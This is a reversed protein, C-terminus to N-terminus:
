HFLRSIAAFPEKPCGALFWALFLAVFFLFLRDLLWAFVIIPLAIIGFLRWESGGSGNLQWKLPWTLGLLLQELYYAAFVRGFFLPLCYGFTTENIEKLRARMNGTIGIKQLAFFPIHILVYIFQKNVTGNGTKM